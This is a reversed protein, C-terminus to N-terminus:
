YIESNFINKFRHHAVKLITSELITSMNKYEELIQEEAIKEIDGTFMISFTRYSLKAVISNNNLVNEEIQEDKPWLFHFKVDKEINLVDGSEPWM